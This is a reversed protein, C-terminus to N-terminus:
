EISKIVEKSSWEELIAKAFNINALIRPAHIIGIGDRPNNKVWEKLSDVIRGLDQAPEYTKKVLQDIRPSIKTVYNEVEHYGKMETYDTEMLEKIKLPNGEERKLASVFQRAGDRTSFENNLFKEEVKEKLKPPSQRLAGTFKGTGKGEKIAKKWRESQSLISLKEELYSSSKGTEEVLWAAGTGPRGTKGEKRSFYEDVMKKLANATDWDNMTNNHINEIVQRRFRHVDDFTMVKVPVTKLGAIKSARWRREGTIIVYDKDVEIANIVGEKIISQAMERLDLNDITTRPQNPDPKIKEIEVELIQM